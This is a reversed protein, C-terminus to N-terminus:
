PVCHLWGTRPCLVKFAGTDDAPGPSFRALIHEMELVSVGEAQTMVDHLWCGASMLRRSPEIARVLSSSSIATFIRHSRAGWWSVCFM